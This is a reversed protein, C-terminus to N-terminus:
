KNQEIIYLRSSYDQYYRVNEDYGTGCYNQKLRIGCNNLFAGSVNYDETESDLRIYKAIANHVFSDKKVHFPAITNILDGFEKINYKLKRNYFHYIKDECLGTTRFVSQPMDPIVKDQIQMAFAYAKDPSVCEWNYVTRGYRDPQARGTRYFRGNIIIDRYKKYFAIQEKVDSLEDATMDSLNCEYGANGFFAINFRTDLPVSRLTQHNPCGSIHNSMVSLPYGYSLGDQIVARCWGDTNDSVWIQPFYCLMGLDFRGGGAACGEFLIDPFAKTLRDLVNYLGLIYRHCFEQQNIISSSCTDSFIRNMDWKVYSIDASSFVDTMSKVIYDRVEPMTLNLFMQNRGKSHSHGLIKVAWEPHNRYCDSDESVMEPEVWIGFKMGKEKLKDALRSLGHPLKNTNCYWDGLSCDDSDRKGFWGDDLVFLEIGIDRAKGALKLLRNENYKFYFSEWSNILVPRSKNKYKGRVIHNNVFRHMNYSMGNFGMCSYTLVAEPSQFCEGAKIDYSFNDPNIGCMLRINGFAGTQACEYHNGSYILNMGYVKGSNQTAQSSALMVFPNNRSGSNGMISSNVIKGPICKTKNLSMERAWAGTFNYFDYDSDYMDLQSSMLRELRINEAENNIIRSSRTICDCEYFVTYVLEMIINYYREKLRITLQKAENQVAYACALGNLKDKGKKIEYSDYIFDSTYNGDINKMLVFPERIDGKGYSSYELNINELTVHGAEDSYSILNGAPYVCKDSSAKVEEQTFDVSSGYYLHELQGTDMIRFTYTTNKTDLVFVGNDYRIM